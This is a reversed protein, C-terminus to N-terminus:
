LGSLNFFGLNKGFERIGTQIQKRTLFICNIGCTNLSQLLYTPYMIEKDHCILEFQDFVVLMKKDKFYSNMNHGFKQGLQALM